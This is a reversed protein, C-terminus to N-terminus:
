IKHASKKRAVLEIFSGMKNLRIQKIIFNAREVKEPLRSVARTTTQTIIYTVVVMPLRILWYFIKKLLNRPRVEDAILLIGGPKLIRYTQFLGFNLEDDSLESFCLGSMVVDYHESPEADLEVISMEQFEVFDSLSASDIQSQAIEMMQFNIDIAKIKAGKQAARITLAGTGCGIDLVQQGNQIHSTLRDYSKDVSGFTLLRIGRDYRSPASEIIKMLVYTSM